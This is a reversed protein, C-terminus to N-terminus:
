KSQCLMEDIIRFESDIEYHNIIKLFLDLHFKKERFLNSVNQKSSTIELQKFRIKSLRM